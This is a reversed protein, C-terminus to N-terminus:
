SATRSRVTPEALQHEAQTSRWLAELEIAALPPSFYYGQAEDCGKEHLYDAQEATEVCEAIVKMGLQHSMEIIAQTISADHPSTTIGRIFSGDIKVADLPFRALYSLSSYGTGFDDLSLRVGLAKLQHLMVINQEADAMMASETIEIELLGLPTLSDEFCDRIASLITTPICDTPGPPASEGGLQLASVNVAVAFPGIAQKEWRALQHCAERLAWAGVQVILGTQELSPIFLGPLVMGHGPRDWRLLAEVGTWAGTRLDVKPQYHLAFENRELAGRLAHELEQKNKARLNMEATYFRAVNRGSQKAADLSLDAFRSLARLDNSDNPYLSMGISATLRVTQNDVVFPARLADLVKNSITVGLQPDRPTLAIVAFEDSGLRAVNDRSYLCGTLRQGVQVLLTDGGAHGCSDNAERFHDLDLFMVILQLDWADAQQSAQELQEDFLTRNALGTLPDYYALLRLKEEFLKRNTIDHAVVVITWDPGNSIAHRTVEYRTRLGARDQIWVEVPQGDSEGAILQDYIVELQEVSADMVDAPGMRLLEERSYGFLRVAAANVQVYKMTHRDVLTVVDPTSDMAASFRQLEKNSALVQEALLDTQFQLQDVIGKERLLARVRVRLEGSDIPKTLHETAGSKLSQLKSAQGALATVMIIPIHSTSPDDKLLRAVEYGDMVPMMADLLILDPTWSRVADLADKGSHVSMTLYGEHVLLAELVECNRVEDDVILVTSEHVADTQEEGEIAPTASDASPLERATM